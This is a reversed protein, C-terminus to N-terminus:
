ILHEFHRGNQETCLRFRSCLSRQVNHLMEPTIERFATMIRHRMDEVTTPTTRYVKSKIFGWLFFDCSTLDPSRPPWIIPGGRGIWKHQYVVDLFQRVQAAYHPPAGDHLFWMCRRTALPVDDLLDNFHNQLFDLYIQSTLHQDFFFPGIIHTGMIGAWVNLSWRYQSNATRYQHPNNTDYYHCNHRNVFGNKHFTAEDSFLVKGFFNEELNIKELAWRCFYLRKEFDREFLEQHLQISYPHYKHMKLIRYVSSKSLDTLRSIERVSSSPNEEVCGLVLFQNEETLVYKARNRKKYSVTGTNTFRELLSIFAARDPHRRNPYRAAYIRSALLTNRECYGLVFVMDVLEEGRFAM